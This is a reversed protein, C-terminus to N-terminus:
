KRRKKSKRRRSRPRASSSAPVTQKPPPPTKAQRGDGSTTGARDSKMHCGKYKKGSGCWCPDNRGLRPGARRQPEPRGGSSGASAHVARVAQRQVPRAFDVHYIRTVVDEEIAQLLESFMAFAERKYAV